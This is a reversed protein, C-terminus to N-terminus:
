LPSFPAQALWAGNEASWRVARATRFGWHEGPRFTIAGGSAAPRDTISEFGAVVAAPSTDGGSGAPGIATLLLDVLDAVLLLNSLEGSSARGSLAPRHGTATEYDDLARETPPALAMGAAAEGVRNLALAVTGDYLDPPMMSATIDTTHEGTELDAVTPRYGLEACARLLEVLSSGSVFPLLVDVGAARFAEAASVDDESGYGLGDSRLHVIRDGACGVKTLEDLAALTSTETYRDSFIGLRVGVDFTGRGYAWRIFSRYLVDQAARITFLAPACRAHIPTPVANVDIVPVGFREALAVAGYTFDRAGVVAAVGDDAFAAAVARKHDPEVADFRRVVLEVDAAHPVGRRRAGDLAARGQAEQDGIGYAEDVAEFASMDAVALGILIRKQPM